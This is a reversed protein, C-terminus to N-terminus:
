CREENLIKKLTFVRKPPMFTDLAVNWSKIAIKHFVYNWTTKLTKATICFFQYFWGLKYHKKRNKRKKAWIQSLVSRKLQILHKWISQIGIKSSVDHKKFM